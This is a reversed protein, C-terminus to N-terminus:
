LRCSNGKTLCVQFTFIVMIKYTVQLYGAMIIYLGVIVSMIKYTFWGSLHHIKWAVPNGLPSKGGMQKVMTMLRWCWQGRPCHLQGCNEDHDVMVLWCGDFERYGGIFGYLDRYKVMM